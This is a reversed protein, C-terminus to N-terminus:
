HFPHCSVSSFPNAYFHRCRSCLAAATQRSLGQRRSVKRVDVSVRFSCVHRCVKRHREEEVRVCIWFRSDGATEFRSRAQRLHSPIGPFNMRVHLKVRSILSSGARVTRNHFFEWRNKSRDLTFLVSAIVSRECGRNRVRWGLIDLRVRSSRAIEVAEDASDVRRTRRSVFLRNSRYSVRALRRDLGHKGLKTSFSLRDVNSRRFAFSRNGRTQKDCSRSMFLLLNWTSYFSTQLMM